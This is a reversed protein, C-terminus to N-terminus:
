PISLMNEMLDLPKGVGASTHRQQWLSTLTIRQEPNRDLCERLLSKSEATIGLYDIQFEKTLIEQENEFLRQSTLMGYLLVGLAWVIARLGDYRGVTQWEPPAYLQSSFEQRLEAHTTIASSFNFLKVHKEESEESDKGIILNERKIDLHVLDVKQLEYAVDVVQSNIM